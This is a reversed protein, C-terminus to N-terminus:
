VVSKRDATFEPTGPQYGLEVLKRAESSLQAGGDKEFASLMLKQQNVWNPDYNPPATGTDINLSKAAALAQQYTAEDTAHNLLRGLQQVRDAQIKQRDAGDQNQMHQYKLAIEPSAQALNGFAATDRPNQVLTSLANRAMEERRMAKGQEYANLANGIIDPTRALSWDIAM